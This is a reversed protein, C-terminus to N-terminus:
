CAGVTRSMDLTILDTRYTIYLSKLSALAGLGLLGADVGIDVVSITLSTLSSLSSLHTQLVPALQGPSEPTTAPISIDLDQLSGKVKALFQGMFDTGDRLVHDPDIRVRQLHKGWPSAAFATLTRALGGDLKADITLSLIPGGEPARLCVPRSVLAGVVAALAEVDCELFIEMSSILHGHLDLWRGFSSIGHNLISEPDILLTLGKFCTWAEPGEYLDSHVEKCVQPIPRKKHSGRM